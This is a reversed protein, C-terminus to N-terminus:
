GDMHGTEDTWEELPYKGFTEVAEEVARLHEPPYPMGQDPACFYGGARGLQWMRHRVERVIREVPGDMVM